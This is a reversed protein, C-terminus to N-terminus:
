AKDWGTRLDLPPRLSGVMEAMGYLATLLLCLTALCPMQM